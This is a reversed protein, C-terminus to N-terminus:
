RDVRWVTAQMPVTVAHTPRPQIQSLWLSTTTDIRDVQTLTIGDTGEPVDPGPAIIFVKRQPFAKVYDEIFKARGDPPGLAVALQDRELWLSTTLVKDAYECCPFGGVLFVGGTPGSGGSLAAVQKSIAFSNKWEEHARIPLSQSLYFAVLAVLGAAGLARAWVARTRWAVALTIGAAACIFPVVNPVYRRGWFMLQPSNKSITLYLVSLVFSPLTFVWAAARWRRLALIALGLGALAFGPITLFWSLRHLNAENYTRGVIGLSAKGYNAGFLRSRFFGVVLLLAALASVFLGLWLQWRDDQARATFWRGVRPAFAGLVAGILLLVVLLAMLKNRPPVGNQKTYTIAGYYAQWYALPFVIGCGALGWWARGDWRRVALLLAALAVIMCIGIVGDARDLWLASVCFGGVFAAPRWRTQLAVVVGYLAGLWMAQALMESSTDRAQWVQLMNTSLLLGAALSATRGAVRRVLAVLVLVAVLAEAPTVLRLGIEHATEWGVALLSSHAHYFQPVILGSAENRVWIGGFRAGPGVLHANVLGHAQAVLAPDTFSVSGSHAIQVGEAVYVGPDSDVGGYPFGPFTLAAAVAGVILLWLLSLRDAVWGPFGGALPSRSVVALVVFGGISLGLSGALSQHHVDALLLSAAALMALLTVAIGAVADVASLRSTDVDPEAAARIRALLSGVAPDGTAASTM